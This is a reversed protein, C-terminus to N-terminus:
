HIRKFEFEDGARLFYVGKLIHVLAMLDSGRLAEPSPMARRRMLEQAAIAVPDAGVTVVASVERKDGEGTVFYGVFQLSEMNGVFIREKVMMAHGAYRINTSYQTTWFFPISDYKYSGGAMNKAAIRGQQMAVPYHEIRIDQGTAWHPYMAIDGAAWITDSGRVQLYEDVKIAGMPGLEIGKLFETAPIVGSGIIVVDADINMTINGNSDKIACATVRGDSGLFKGVTSKMIFRVGKSEHLDMMRKGIEPGLVREFPVAEMGIVTV